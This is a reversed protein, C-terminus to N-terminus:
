IEKVLPVGTPPRPDVGGAAIIAARVALLLSVFASVGMGILLPAWYFVIPIAITQSRDGQNIQQVAQGYAYYTLMAVFGTTLVAVLFKLAALARPPLPDTVFDVGVHGERIFALPMALCICAMVFLQMIDNIGTVSFGITKRCVIDVMSALIAISILVMGFSAIWEGISDTLALLRRLM